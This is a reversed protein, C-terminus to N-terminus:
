ADSAVAASSNAAGPPMCAGAPAPACAGALLPALTFQTSSSTQSSDRSGREVGRAGEECAARRWSAAPATAFDSSTSRALLPSSVVVSMTGPEAETGPLWSYTDAVSTAVPSVTTKMSQRGYMLM